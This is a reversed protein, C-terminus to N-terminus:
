KSGDLDRKRKALLDRLENMVDRKAEAPSVNRIPARPPHSDARNGQIEAIIKTLFSIQEELSNVKAQISDLKYDIKEPMDMFIHVMKEFSKISQEMQEQFPTKGIKAFVNLFEETM